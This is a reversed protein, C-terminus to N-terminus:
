PTYKIFAKFSFRTLRRERNLLLRTMKLRKAKANATAAQLSLLLSPPPVGV